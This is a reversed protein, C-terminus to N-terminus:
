CLSNRCLAGLLCKSSRSPPQAHIEGDQSTGSTCPQLFLRSSPGPDHLLELLPRPGQRPRKPTAGLEATSSPTGLPMKGVEGHASLEAAVRHCEPLAAPSPQARRNMVLLFPIPQARCPELLGPCHETWTRPSSPQLQTFCMCLHSPTKAPVTSHAHHSVPFM